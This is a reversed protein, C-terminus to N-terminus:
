CVTHAEAPPGACLEQVPDDRLANVTVDAGLRRAHELKGEDVDIAAVHLGMTRAYQVALHGLGGIGSIAIWEGPKAETEKIGKYTTVGACAIPAVGQPDLGKPIHAVYGRRLSRQRHAV